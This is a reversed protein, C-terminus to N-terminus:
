QIGRWSMNRCFRLDEYSIEAVGANLFPTEKKILISGWDDLPPAASKKVVVTARM